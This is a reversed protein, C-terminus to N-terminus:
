SSNERSHLPNPPSASPSLTLLLLPSSLLMLMLVPTDTWYQDTSWLGTQLGCLTQLAGKHSVNLTMTGECQVTSVLAM